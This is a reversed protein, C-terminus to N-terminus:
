PAPECDLMAMAREEGPYLSPYSRSDIKRCGPPYPGTADFVVRYRSPRAVWWPNDGPSYLTHTSAIWAEFRRPGNVEFGGDIADGPVGRAELARVLGDRAANWGLYERTGLVSFLAGLALVAVAAAAGRRGFAGRAGDLAVWLIAPMTVMVYRDFVLSGTGCVWALHLAAAGPLVMLARDRAVDEGAAADAPAATARLWALRMAVRRGAAVLWTAAYVGGFTSLATLAVGVAWPRHPFPSRGLYVDAITLPGIGLVYVTNSLYPMLPQRARDLGLRGHAGILSDLLDVAVFVLLLGAAIRAFRPTTMGRLRGAAACGLAIPAVWLGAYHWVCSLNMAWDLPTTSLIRRLTSRNALTAGHAGTYWAQYAVFGVVLPALLVAARRWARRRWGAEGERRADLAVLAVAAPAAMVAFQRSLAALMLLTGAVLLRTAQGREATLLALQAGLMLTLWPVDTMYTFSLGFCWPSLWTLGSLLAAAPPPLSARRGIAYLLLVGVGAFALTGTRLLVYSPGFYRVVLAGWAAHSALSPAGWDLLRLEGTTALRRATWAYAWDDNLPFDGGLGTLAVALAWLAVLGGAWLVERGAGRARGSM